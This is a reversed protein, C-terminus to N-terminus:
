KRTFSISSSRGGDPNVVVVNVTKGKPTATLWDKASSVLNVGKKNTKVKSDLLFKGDVEILAGPLLQTGTVSLKSAQKQKVDGIVPTSAVLQQNDRTVALTNACMELFAARGFPIDRPPNNPQFISNASNDYTTTLRIETGAPLSIPKKFTYTNQKPVSWDVGVICKREGNPLIAETFSDFALLHAHPTTASITLPEKIVVSGVVKFAPEGAPIIFSENRAQITFREKVIPTRAFRLGLKTKDTVARDLSQTRGGYHVQMILSAGKPIRVGEGEPFVVPASGPFWQGILPSDFGVGTISEYGPGPIGPNSAQFKREQEIGQGKPDLHLLVHHVLINESNNSDDLETGDTPEGPVVEFGTIFRDVEFNVPIVFNRFIDRSVGPPISFGKKNNAVVMDPNTQFEGQAFTLPPPLQRVDGEPAGADVWASIVAVEDKTLRRPGDFTDGDSCGDDIRVSTDDPMRNTQVDFKIAELYPLTDKYTILSFPAVGGDHHCRQCHQQMLRVVQNSFTVETGDQAIAKAKTRSTAQTPSTHTLLVALGICSLISFIFLSTQYKRM